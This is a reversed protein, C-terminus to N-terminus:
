LTHKAKSYASLISNRARKADTILPAKQHMELAPARQLVKGAGAKVEPQLRDAYIWASCPDAKAVNALIGLAAFGVQWSDPLKAGKPNARIEEASPLTQRIKYIALFGGAQAEGVLGSLGALITHNIQAQPGTGIMEPIGDEACGALFELGRVWARPTGWNTANVSAGRPPELQLLGPTTNEITLALELAYSALFPCGQDADALTKLYAIVEPPEPLFDVIMTRNILPLALDYGGAAQDSPNCALLVRSEPHMVTDGWVGELVGQMCAAQVSPPAQTIEDLFLLCKSDRIARIARLPARTIAGDKAVPIGGLDTPDCQSAILTYCEYGLAKAVQFIISSKGIGPPGKVNLAIRRALCVRILDKLQRINVAMPNPM